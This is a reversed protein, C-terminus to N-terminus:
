GVFRGRAATSSALSQRDSRTSRRSSASSTTASLSCPKTMLPEPSSISGSSPTRAIPDPPENASAAARASSPVVFSSGGAM